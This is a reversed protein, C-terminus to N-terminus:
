KKKLKQNDLLLDKWSLTPDHNNNDNDHKISHQLSLEKLANVPLSHLAGLPLEHRSFGRSAAANLLANNGNEDNACFTDSVDAVYSLSEFPCANPLTNRKTLKRPRAGAADDRFSANKTDMRTSPLKSLDIRDNDIDQVIQKQQRKAIFLM